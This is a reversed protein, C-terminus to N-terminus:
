VVLIPALSPILARHRVGADHLRWVRFYEETIGVILITSTSLGGRSPPLRLKRQSLMLWPTSHQCGLIAPTPRGWQASTRIPPLCGEIMCCVPCSPHGSYYHSAGQFVYSPETTQALSFRKAQTEIGHYLMLKSALLM